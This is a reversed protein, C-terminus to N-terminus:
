VTEVFAFDAQRPDFFHLGNAHEKFSLNSLGAAEQHVLFSEEESDYTVKYQKKMNKLTFINTIVKKSFWVPEDYDAVNAIHHAILEGGNSKLILPEPALRINSVFEKNCFINVTLQNILLIVGKLNVGQLGKKSQRFAMDMLAKPLCGGRNIRSGYQFHLMEKGSDSNLYGEQALKLQAFSKKLNKLQNEFDKIKPKRGSKSSRSSRSSISLDDDDDTKTPCHLQPHGKKGCKFCPLDKFYEKDFEKKEAKPKNSRKKEEGKKSRGGKQALATGQSGRDAPAM